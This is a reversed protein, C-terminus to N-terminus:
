LEALGFLRSSNFSTKQEVETQELGLLQSIRSAILPLYAPENRKGRHPVPALYPADTELLIMSIDEPLLVKDLGGNKFTSVGGIGIYMGLDKIAKIQERTGSFCHFVGTLRGDQFQRALDISDDLSDRSHIIIPKGTERSWDLQISFADKQEPIFTKDWYYDLGTEGVGVFEHKSLHTEMNALVSKYDKDVSCPHLGISPHCKEPFKHHLEIMSDITSSDINPMVIHEVGAKFAHELMLTRDADFADTYIHAHSDIM